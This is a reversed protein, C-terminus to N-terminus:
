NNSNYLALTFGQIISLDVEKIPYKQAPIETVRPRRCRDHEGPRTLKQGPIETIRQDLNVTRGTIKEIASIGHPTLSYRKSDDKQIYGRKLIKSIKSDTTRSHYKLNKIIQGRTLGPQDKLLTLIAKSIDGFAKSSSSYDTQQREPVASILPVPIGLLARDLDDGNLHVYVRPMGSGMVWGFYTSLQAETLYTALYTARSHRFLHPYVEKIVNAKKALRKLRARVAGHNLAWVRDNPSKNKICEKLFLASSILRVRRMGTKGDVIIKAGITDFFCNKVQLSLLEGIRCGSEWLCSVLAKTEVAHAAGIMADIDGQTLLEDPLKVSHNKGAKIWDVLEKKGLWKYFKKLAVKYDHKTWNSWKSEKEIRFVLDTLDKKDAESFAKPLMEGLTRLTIIYKEVRSISLGEIVCNKEFDFILDKSGEPVLSNKIRNEANSLRKEFNYIDYKM